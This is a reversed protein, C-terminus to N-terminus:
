DSKSNSRGFWRGEDQAENGREFEKRATQMRATEGKNFGGARCGTKDTKMSALSVASLMGEQSFFHFSLSEFRQGRPRWALTFVVLGRCGGMINSM